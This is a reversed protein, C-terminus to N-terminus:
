RELVKRPLAREALEQRMQELMLFESAAGLAAEPRRKEREWFAQPAGCPVRYARCARPQYAYLPGAPALQGAGRTRAARLLSTLM